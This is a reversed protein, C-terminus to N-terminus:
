LCEHPEPVLRDHLTELLYTRMSLDVGTGAAGITNEAKSGNFNVM